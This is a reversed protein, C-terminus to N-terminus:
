RGKLLLPLAVPCEVKVLKEEETACCEVGSSRCCSGNAEARGCALFKVKGQAQGEWIFITDFQYQVDSWCNLNSQWGPQSDGRQRSVAPKESPADDLPVDCRHMHMIGNQDIARLERRMPRMKAM